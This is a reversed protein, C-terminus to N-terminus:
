AGSVREIISSHRSAPMTGAARADRGSAVARGAARSGGGRRERRCAWSRWCAASAEDSIIRREGTESVYDSLIGYARALQDLAESM